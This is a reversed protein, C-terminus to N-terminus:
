PSLLALEVASRGALTAGSRDRDGIPANVIPRDPHEAEGTYATLSEVQAWDLGAARARLVTTGVTGSGIGLSEAVARHSQGLGWKQRLIERIQRM